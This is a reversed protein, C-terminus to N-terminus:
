YKSFLSSSVDISGLPSLEGSLILLVNKHTDGSLSFRRHLLKQSVSIHPPFSAEEREYGEEVNKLRSKLFISCM